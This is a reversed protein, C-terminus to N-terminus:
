PRSLLMSVLKWVALVIVPVVLLFLFVRVPSSLFERLVSEHDTSESTEEAEPDNQEPESSV